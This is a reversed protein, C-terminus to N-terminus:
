RWGPVGDTYSGVWQTTRKRAYHADGDYPSSVFTASTPTDETARWRIAAEERTFNQLWIRRLTVVAPVERLWAPTEPANIAM